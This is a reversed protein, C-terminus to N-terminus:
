SSRSQCTPLAANNEIIVVTLKHMSMIRLTTKTIDKM